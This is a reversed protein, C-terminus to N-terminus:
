KIMSDRLVLLSEPGMNFLLDIISLNPTFGWKQEFLQYYNVDCYEPDLLKYDKKPHILERFDADGNQLIQETPLYESTFDVNPKFGILECILERLSENFDFLFDHKKEFFPALDDEYYEFFPTNNYTSRIAYWHQHRWNGHDSLRIDRTLCKGADKETPISLVQTGNAGEIFMRNRYTQKIYNDFAEILVRDYHYLKSYYEIPGLYASTLYATPM